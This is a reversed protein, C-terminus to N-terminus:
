SRDPTLRAALHQSVPRGADINVLTLVFWTKVVAGADVGTGTLTGVGIGTLAGVGTGTHTGVGTGTLAGVGTLGPTHGM